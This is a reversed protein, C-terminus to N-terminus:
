CAQPGPVGAAPSRSRVRRPRRERAVGRSRGEQVRRRERDRRALEERYLHDLAHYLYQPHM